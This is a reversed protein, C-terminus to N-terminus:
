IRIPEDLPLWVAMSTPGRNAWAYYPVLRLAAPRLDVPLRAGRPAYLTEPLEESEPLRGAGDLVTVGGLLDVEHHPTFPVAANLRVRRVDAGEHDVGEACYIVPGRRVAVSGRTEPVRPDAELLTVPMDLALTVTDGPQWTRRLALYTGPQPAAHDAWAGNIIVAVAQAWAPIRLYLAFEAPHEPEVTITITGDWPYRTQQMLSFPTGDALWWDIRAADYLHLWVGDESTSAFYGPLSALFREANPPCCNCAYDTQRQYPARRAWPYWPDGEDQGHDTLPNIYFYHTGSLSVGSLAGNYLTRELEDAFRAEGAIQTMRWNWFITALAACTEAYARQNPLEYAMGVSEGHYRGGIGGTVYLKTRVMDQWRRELSARWGEDGTELVYDAAGAACYAARVAHGEFREADRTGSRELFFGALDLYRRENTERYLEILALEIEPHGPAEQRLGPGFVTTLYDAFRIAADLLRREGTVRHHAIAAQILHGACYLEHDVAINHFRRTPDNGFFTNLYGDDSQAPLIADIVEDLQARIASVPADGDLLAYAAAEMWKYLDSDRFFFEQTIVEEGAAVRHFNDLLGRAKLIDFQQPIGAAANAACRPRWFGDKLQVASVPIPRLRAYPSRATNLVVTHEISM